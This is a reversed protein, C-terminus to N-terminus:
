VTEAAAAVPMPGAEAFSVAKDMAAVLREVVADVPLVGVEGAKTNVSLPKRNPSGLYIYVYLYIYIYIYM